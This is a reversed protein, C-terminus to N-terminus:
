ADEGRYHNLMAIIKRLGFTVGWVGLLAGFILLGADMFDPYLCPQFAPPMVVTSLTTAGGGIPATALQLTMNGNIDSSLCSATTISNGGGTISTVPSFQSCASQGASALDAYCAWGVQFSM